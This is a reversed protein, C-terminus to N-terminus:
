LGSCIDTWEAGSQIQFLCGNQWDRFWSGPTTAVALCLSPQPGVRLEPHRARQLQLHIFIVYFWTLCSCVSLTFIVCMGLSCSYIPHGPCYTHLLKIFIKSPSMIIIWFLSAWICLIGPPHLPPPPVSVRLILYNATLKSKHKFWRWTRAKQCSEGCRDQRGQPRCFSLSPLTLLMQNISFVPHEPKAWEKSASNSFSALNILHLLVKGNEKCILYKSNYCESPVLVNVVHNNVHKHFTTHM